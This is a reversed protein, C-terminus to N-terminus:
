RKRLSRAATKGAAARENERVRRKVLQAIKAVPLPERLSVAADGQGRRLAAARSVKYTQGLAYLGVHNTHAMVLRVGSSDQWRVV